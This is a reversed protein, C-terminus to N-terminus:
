VLGGSGPPPQPPHRPRLPETPSPVLSSRSSPSARCKTVYILKTTYPVAGARPRVRARAHAFSFGIRRAHLFCSYSPVRRLASAARLLRADYAHLLPLRQCAYLGRRILYIRENTERTLSTLGTTQDGIPGAIVPVTLKRLASKAQALGSDDNSADIFINNGLRTRRNQYYFKPSM